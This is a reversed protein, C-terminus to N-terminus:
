KVEQAIRRENLEKRTPSVVPEINEYGKRPTYDGDLNYEGIKTQGQNRCNCLPEDWDCYAASWHPTLVVNYVSKKGDWVKKQEREQEPALVEGLWELLKTNESWGPVRFEELLGNSDFRYGELAIDARLTSVSESREEMVPHIVDRPIPTVEQWSPAPTDGSSIDNMPVYLVGVSDLMPKGADVLAWFYASLQWIHERKAGDRNIFFMSEGKTTKLDGLVYADYEPHKFVYDATGSWGSPLWEDLKVETHVEIGNAHLLSELFRHWLTGTMLRIQSAINAPRQPAGIARLQTHRLSGVLDSSAHLKGDPPRKDAEIAEIFLSTLDVPILEGM